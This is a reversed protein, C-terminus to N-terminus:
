SSENARSGFASVSHNTADPYFRRHFKEADAQRKFVMKMYWGKVTKYGIKRVLSKPDIEEELWDFVPDPDDCLLDVRYVAM